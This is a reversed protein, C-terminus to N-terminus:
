HFGREGDRNQEALARQPLRAVEILPKQSLAVGVKVSNVEADGAAVDGDNRARTYRDSGVNGVIAPGDVGAAGNVKGAVVDRKRGVAVLDRNASDSRPGIRAPKITSRVDGMSQGVRVNQGGNKRVGDGPAGHAAIAGETQGEHEASPVHVARRKRDLPSARLYPGRAGAEGGCLGHEGHELYVVPVAMRLSKLRREVAGACGTEAREVIVLGFKRYIGAHVLVQHEVAFIPSVRCCGIRPFGDVNLNQRFVSEHLFNPFM